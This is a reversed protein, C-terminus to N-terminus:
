LLATQRPPSVVRPLVHDPCLHTPMTQRRSLRGAGQLIAQKLQERSFFALSVGKSLFFRPVPIQCPVRALIDGVTGLVGERGLLLGLTLSQANEAM